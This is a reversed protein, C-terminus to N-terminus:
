DQRKTFPWSLYIGRLVLVVGLFVYLWRLPGTTKHLYQLYGDAVVLLGLLLMTAGWIHNLM